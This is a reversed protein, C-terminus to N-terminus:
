VGVWGIDYFLKGGRVGLMRANPAWKETRCKSFLAGDSRTTFRVMATFDGNLHVKDADPMEPAGITAQDAISKGNITASFSALRGRLQEYQLDLTQWQAPARTKLDLTEQPNLRVALTATSSPLRYDLHLRFNALPASHEVTQAEASPHFNAFVPVHTQDVPTAPIIPVQARGS